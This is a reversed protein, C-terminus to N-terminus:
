MADSTELAKELFRAAYRLEDGAELRGDLRARRTEKLADGIWPGPRYGAEILDAGRIGLEFTRLETLDRRVWARVAEDPEVLLLLLEEGALPELAEAAQHPLLDPRGLERRARELRSPFGTLLRRDEGALMLRDALRILEPEPLDGALAMLHLRWVRVPPDTLGELHYWDWAARAGRLRERTGDELGLHPHLVRLLDLEALREIGRLALAPEDLLMTLEDRLRSGSLQEFIGEGLAVEVLRLTEPSLHFGLRLELRV